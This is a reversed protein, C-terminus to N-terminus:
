RVPHTAESVSRSGPTVAAAAHTLLDRSHARIRRRVSPRVDAWDVMCDEIDHCGRQAEPVLGSEVADVISGLRDYFLRSRYPPHLSWMGPDAGLFDVRLLGLDEMANSIIGEPTLSPPNGELWAAAAKRLGPSSVSLGRVRRRDLLFLRTSLANSRFAPFDDIESYLRQSRLVGDATPPGPLPNCALVDPRSRLIELARAVWSQSGGGFLMDSDLHYVFDSKAALLAFFYAYFPGGRHDKTPIPLGDFFAAEVAKRAEPRYDVDVTRAHPHSACLQEVLARLGPLRDQWGESFRGNSRHLDVVFLVEDVQGGWQRVQHPVIHVAHPLDTPALSIQLTVRPTATTM